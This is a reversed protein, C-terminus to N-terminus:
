DGPVFAPAEGVEMKVLMTPPVRSSSSLSAASPSAFRRRYFSCRRKSFAPPLAM